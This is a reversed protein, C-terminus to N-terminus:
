VNALKRTDVSDLTHAAPLGRRETAVLQDLKDKITPISSLTLWKLQGEQAGEALRLARYREFFHKGTPVVTVPQLRDSHRKAQYEVNVAALAEDVAQAFRALTAESYENLLEIYLQYRQQEADAYGMFFDHQVETTAAARHVAEIFQSESLKEGQISTIGKGKFLFRLIPTEHFKGVVEVVDNMDYRYLGSFTTVYIYYRQGVELEHALLFGAKDDDAFPKFEYFSSSVQLISGDTAPDLLDTAMVESALYGFDLVPTTDRFWPKLKPAILSCNGNKWTHVLRLNPWYDAPKFVDNHAAIGELQAARGPNPALTAQIEARIDAEIPLDERLTGDRIDRIIAEKFLDARKVLNLVTSPNATLIVTVDHALACRLLTYVKAEYDQITVAGYPITHVQKMFNPINQYVLGSLSGFPTGDPTRGEEAPSVVALDKGKYIGPYHRMLGYLWLKGRDKISREFHYPTVPILKPLATTGSSQNYMLPKGPFLVDAEGQTHREVYPRLAEYDNVPVRNAYDKYSGISAFGQQRGYVTEKSYQMIENLIAAQTQEVRQSAQTFKKYLRSGPIALVREIHRSLLGNLVGQIGKRPKSIM